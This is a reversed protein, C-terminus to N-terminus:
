EEVVEADIIDDESGYAPRATDTAASARAFFGPDAGTVDHAASTGSQESTQARGTGTTTGTTTGARALDTVARDIESSSMLSRVRLLAGLVEGQQHRLGELIGAVQSIQAEIDDFRQQARQRSEEVADLLLKDAQERAKRVIPHNAAADEIAEELAQEAIARAGTVIEDAEQHAITLMLGIRGGAQAALRDPLTAEGDRRRRDAHLAAEAAAARQTVQSAYRWLTALYEEVQRPDYGRAVEDFRPREADTGTDTRHYDAGM